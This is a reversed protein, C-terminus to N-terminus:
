VTALTKPPDSAYIEDLPSLAVRWDYKREALRRGDTALSKRLNQDRLLRVVDNAFDAPKDAVLIDTGPTAEIGELGVTTTVMPIARALGELIRVRIGSGSSIPVVMVASEELYPILDEVYGCVRIAGGSGSGMKRIERDPNKGVITLTVIPIQSQILPFVDKGFWLIGEANPPYHLTGLALINRSDRHRQVPQIQKTDVGIPVISIRGGPSYGGNAGDIVDTRLSSAEALANRDIESVALTRDFERVLMGEYRKVRRSEIELVLKKLTSATDSFREVIRWVANHTDFILSPASDTGILSRKARLAFQAMTLQDAHIAEIKRKVVIRRVLDSMASVDDREVLFPRGSANSRLWAIIDMRRTRIIPVTNVTECLDRLVGLHSEEERRALSLLHVEHGQSVLYRLVTWTKVRPGADPPYPVIQTLLLIRLTIPSSKSKPLRLGNAM